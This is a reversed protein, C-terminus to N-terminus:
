KKVVSFTATQNETIVQLYYMGSPFDGVKFSLLQNEFDVKRTWQQMVSGNINVLSFHAQGKLAKNLRLQFKDDIPNPSITADITTLLPNSTSVLERDGTGFWVGWKGGEILIQADNSGTIKDSELSTIGLLQSGGNDNADFVIEDDFISYSPYNLVVNNEFITGVDGTEFNVGLLDFDDFTAADNIYDLAMINPSNKSFTPNGVGTNDPLGNFLKIVFGDGFYSTSNDWVRLLGIDWYDGSNGFQDDLINYSDYMLYEGSYDWELVDAYDVDGTFVGQQTAPNYLEFYQGAGTIFDYILITNDYDTTLAALRTGDKSIAVNRWITQPDSELYDEIYQGSSQDYQMIRLTNDAACFMIVSGDDSVSPRSIINTTSIQTVNQYDYLYIGAGDIDTMLIGGGENAQLEETPPTGAGEGIGVQSFANAAAAAQNSGAGFLDEASSIVAIRADIFQSRNTMYNTLAHYYIRRADANGVQTAFLYFAKNPIGSNVHVGGFDGDQTNPLNQFENMHAPQWGADNLSNGGQNPDSMSRLAGSAFISGDVVEEGLEWNDPDIMVGFVDAFSENLAGSQGEYVLGAAQEIVGHTMEHGGVDLARQLPSSFAQNGNGYFMAAGNWFANDMSSGDQDAVNIFAIINGGQSNISNRSHITRYYEYCLAAHNHASIAAPYNWFNDADNIFNTQFDSNAPSTNGADLTFIAGQMNDPIASNVNYMTRNIDLLYYGDSDEYVNINQTVGNLDTASATTGGTPPPSAAHTHHAHGGEYYKKLADPYFTCTHNIKHLIVGSNADVFVDWNEQVNPTVHIQWATHVKLDHATYIVLRPAREAQVAYKKQEATFSQINYFSARAIARAASEDINVEALSINKTSLWRGNLAYIVDDKAHLIIQGGFVAVGNHLQQMKIHVGGMEDAHKSIIEFASGAKDIQMIASARELYAHAQLELSSYSAAADLKGKIFIPMEGDYAAVKFPSNLAELESVSFSRYATTIHELPRQARPIAEVPNIKPNFNEAEFNTPTIVQPKQPKEAQAYLSISGIGLMVFLLYKKM